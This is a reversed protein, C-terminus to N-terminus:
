NDSWFTTISGQIPASALTGVPLAIFNLYADNPIRPLISFDRWLDYECVATTEFIQFTAISKVLVLCLLGTDSSAFEISQISQVGSDGYALPLFRGPISATATASTAITGAVAQSNCVVYPTTNSVGSQNTYSVRFRAGGVYPNQEVAMIMIGQYDTYRPLTINNVMSQVGVDMSIGPYYMCYDLLELTLPAATSLTTQCTLKHLYKFGAAANPGHNLGGESSYSLPAATLPTSFYYQAVPNGPSMSLDFWIGSSTTQTPNKTWPSFLSQGQSYCAAIASSTLPM